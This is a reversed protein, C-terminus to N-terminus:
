IIIHNFINNIWISTGKTIIQQHTHKNWTCRCQPHFHRHQTPFNPCPRPLYPLSSMPILPTHTRHQSQIQPLYSTNTDQISPGVSNIDYSEGPPLGQIRRSQRSPQPPQTEQPANMEASSRM